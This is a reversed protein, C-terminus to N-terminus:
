DHRRRVLRAVYYATLLLPAAGLGIGAGVIAYAAPTVGPAISNPDEHGNGISLGILAGIVVSAIVLLWGIARPSLQDSPLQQNPDPRTNTVTSVTRAAALRGSVGAGNRPQVRFRWDHIRRVTM